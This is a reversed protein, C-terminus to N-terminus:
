AAIAELTRGRTEIVFLIVVVAGVAAICSFTLFVASIGAAPLIFGVALPGLIAALRYFSTGVGAGLARIRTPYIEPGYVYIGALLISIAYCSIASLVAVLEVSVHPALRWLVFMPVGAGIFGAAFCVRRGLKDIFLAGTLAALPSMAMNVFGYFLAKSVPLHFVSRYLSPLWTILGYGVASTCFMLGWLSLTRVAYGDRFLAAFSSQKVASNIPIARTISQPPATGAKQEIYTMAQDAEERRGRSALWRPSEPVRGIFPVLVLPAVGILFMWRWGLHPVIWLAGLASGAVGFAFMAQFLFVVRGRLRAPIMENIYTAGLPVEGGLGIGQLLRCYMLVYYTPSLACVISLASMCCIAWQLGLRRGIREAIVGFVVAGIMQGAYGAAILFGIQQAKLAWLESIVPLVFAIAMADFADFFSATGILAAVRVHWTSLPLREIRDSVETIPLVSM